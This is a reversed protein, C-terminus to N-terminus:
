SAHALGLNNPEQDVYSISVNFRSGDNFYQIIDDKMHRVVIVIEQIGSACVFDIIHELLPKGAVPLMHKPRTYTLPLMRTGRGAALIVAKLTIM